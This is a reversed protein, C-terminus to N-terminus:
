KKRSYKHIIYKLRKLKETLKSKKQEKKIEGFLSVVKEGFLRGRESANPVQDILEACYVQLDILKVYYDAYLKAQEACFYGYDDENEMIKEISWLQEMDCTKPIEIEVIGCRLHHTEAKVCRVSAPGFFLLILVILVLKKM